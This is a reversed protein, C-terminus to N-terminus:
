HGSIATLGRVAATQGAHNAVKFMEFFISMM